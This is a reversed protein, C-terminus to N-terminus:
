KNFFLLDFDKNAIEARQQKLTRLHQVQNHSITQVLKHRLKQVRSELKIKQDYCLQTKNYDRPISSMEFIWHTRKIEAAREYLKILYRFSDISRQYEVLSLTTEDM